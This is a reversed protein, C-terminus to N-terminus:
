QAKKAVQPEKIYRSIDTADAAQAILGKVTQWGQRVIPPVSQNAVTADIVSGAEHIADQVFSSQSFRARFFITYIGFLIWAGKTFTIASLLIRFWLAIELDAVLKMSMDYYGKVFRGISEGIASNKNPGPRAKPSTGPPPPPPPTITPILTNRTYTAVHFVSYVTFPLLALPVQRSVLWILAMVPFSLILESHAQTISIFEGLYQFNEDGAVELPKVRGARIRAFYAKYVVIGYTAAAAIFATRYTFKAWNSYYNLTIYSLGYRLTCFLLTV